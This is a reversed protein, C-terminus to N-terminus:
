EHFILGNHSLRHRSHEPAASVKHELSRVALIRERQQLVTAVRDVEYDDIEHHGLHASAIERVAHARRPRHQRHHEHRSVRFLARRM